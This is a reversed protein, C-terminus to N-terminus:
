PSGAGVSMGHYFVLFGLNKKTKQKKKKQPPPNSRFMIFIRYKSWILPIESDLNLIPGWNHASHVLVWLVGYM